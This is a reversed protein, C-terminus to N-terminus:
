ELRVTSAVRQVVSVHGATSSLLLQRPYYSYKGSFTVLLDLRGDRDLDGAWHIHFHPGDCSYGAEAESPFLTQTTGEHSLTIVADCLEPDSSRLEIRYERSGIRLQATRSQPHIDINGAVTVAPGSPVSPLGSFLFAPGPPQPVLDYIVLDGQRRVGLEIRASEVRSGAPRAYLGRWDRVKLHEPAKDESYHHLDDAPIVLPDALLSSAALFSVVGLAVRPNM